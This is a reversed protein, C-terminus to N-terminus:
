FRGYFKRRMKSAMVNRRIESNMFSDKIRVNNTANIRCYMRQYVENQQYTVRKWFVLSRYASYLVVRINHFTRRPQQPQYLDLEMGHRHGGEYRRQTRYPEMELM